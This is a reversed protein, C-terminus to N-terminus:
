DEATMQHRNFLDRNAFDTIEISEVAISYDCSTLCALECGLVKAAWSVM